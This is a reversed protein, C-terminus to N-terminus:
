YRYYGYGYNGYGGSMTTAGYGVKYNAGMLVATALAFALIIIILALNGGSISFNETYTPNAMKYPNIKDYILKSDSLIKNTYDAVLAVNDSEPSLSQTINNLLGEARKVLVGSFDKISKVDNVNNTKYAVKGLYKIFDNTILFDNIKNVVNADDKFGNLVNKQESIMSHASNSRVLADYKKKNESMFTDHLMMAENLVKEGKEKDRCPCSWQEIM